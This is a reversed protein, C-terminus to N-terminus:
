LAHRYTVKKSTPKERVGGGIKSTFVVLASMVVM